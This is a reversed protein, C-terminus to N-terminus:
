KRAEVAAAKAPVPTPRAVTLAITSAWPPVRSTTLPTPRPDVNTTVNGPPPAGTRYAIARSLPRTMMTPEPLVTCVLPTAVEDASALVAADRSLDVGPGGGIVLRASFVRYDTVVTLPM